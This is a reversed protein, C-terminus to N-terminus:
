IWTSKIVANFEEFSNEFTSCDIFDLVTSNFDGGGGRPLGEAAGAAPGLPGPGAAGAPPVGMARLGM